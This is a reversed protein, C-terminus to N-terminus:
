MRNAMGKREGSHILNDCTILTSVGTAAVGVLLAVADVMMMRVPYTLHHQQSLCNNDLSQQHNLEFMQRLLIWHLFPPVCFSVLAVSFCGVFALVSVFGPLTFSIAVTIFSIASRALLQSTPHVQGDDHIKGEVIEACPVVLLPATAMVVVIMALRALTALWGVPLESLVDDQIDPYLNLFGIGLLIYASAVLLMSIMATNPLYEPQSMSERFNFTLPVIGFGFVVCGFWHSVGALGDSPLWQFPTEKNSDLNRQGYGTVGYGATVLMTMGLIILGFRSLKSLSSMDEVLCLPVLLIALILADILNNHTTFPTGKSFSLIAAEYAIVIGSLLLLLMIDLVILGADGLAYYAIKGLTATGAPPPSRQSIKSHPSEGLQLLLTLCDCLRSLSFVNWLAIIITGFVFLILGGQQCAFPLALIGTGAATKALNVGVNKSSAAGKRTVLLLIDSATATSSASEHDNYGMYSSSKATSLLLPSRERYHAEGSSTMDETEEVFTSRDTM